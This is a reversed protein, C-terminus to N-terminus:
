FISKSRNIITLDTRKRNEAKSIETELEMIIENEEIIKRM